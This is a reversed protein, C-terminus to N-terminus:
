SRKIRKGYKLGVPSFALDITDSQLYDKAYITARASLKGYKSNDSWVKELAAILSKDNYPISEGL